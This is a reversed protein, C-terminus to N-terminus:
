LVEDSIVLNTVAADSLALRTVAADTLALATVVADAIILAARLDAGVLVVVVAGFAEGSAISAPLIIVAGPIVTVAGFAEASIIGSPLLTLALLPTGFAEGSAIGDPLITVAGPTVTLEGFAELSAIGTPLIVVVGGSVIASGFAEASPIAGPLLTVPGPLVTHGGFAELSAIGTPSITQSGGGATYEIHLKPAFSSGSDYQRWVFRHTGSTNNGTPLLQIASPDYSDALEQVVGVISPSNQWGSISGPSWNTFAATRPKGDYDAGNTPAPPAAADEAFLDVDPSGIVSDVNPTAYAVDITAGSLGSIGTFRAWGHRKYSWYGHNAYSITDTFWPQENREGDDASVGVQEDITVDVMLPYVAGQVFSLPVRHSVYRSNGKKKFRFTGLQENEDADWSRPLNFWWLVDGAGNRFEVLGQTDRDKAQGGRGWPQGNVYPTVGSSFAFVFNLELVPGGGDIIFQDVAPLDTLADITLLKALRATQAQWSLSRGPGYGDAWTLTDDDVAAEVAQPMSIQQIQNLDNSYQLAMPQFRVWESGNRYEIVQGANLTSLARMEFGAKTMEWDWPAVSPQLATDIEQDDGPGYHLPGIACDLVFRPRGEPSDAIRHKIHNRGRGVVVAGPHTALVKARAEAAPNAV